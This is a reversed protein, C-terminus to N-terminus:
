KQNCPLLFDNVQQVLFAMNDYCNVGAQMYIISSSMCIFGIKPHVLSKFVHM